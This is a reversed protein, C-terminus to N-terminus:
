SIGWMAKLGGVIEDAHDSLHTAVAGASMFRYLINTRQRGNLPSATASGNSDGLFGAGQRWEVGQDRVPGTYAATTFAGGNVSMGLTSGDFYCCYVRAVGATSTTSVSGPTSTENCAYFVTSTASELRLIWELGGTGVTAAGGKQLLRQQGAQNAPVAVMYLVMYNVHPASDPTRLYDNSGDYLPDLLSASGVTVTDAAGGNVIRPQASTSSQTGHRGNGSHDYETDIYASGAGAFATLDALALRADAGPGVDQTANDSSRRAKVLPQGRYSSLLTQAACRAWYLGDTRRDLLMAGRRPTHTLM